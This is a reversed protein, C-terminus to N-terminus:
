TKPDSAELELMIKLYAELVEPDKALTRNHDVDFQAHELAMRKRGANRAHKIKDETGATSEAHAIRVKNHLMDMGRNASDIGGLLIDATGTVVDLVNIVSSRSSGILSAM